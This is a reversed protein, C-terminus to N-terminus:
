FLLNTSILNLVSIFKLKLPQNADDLVTLMYYPDIFKWWIYISRLYNISGAM